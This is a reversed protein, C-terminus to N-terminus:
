CGNVKSRLTVEARMADVLEEGEVADPVQDEIQRRLGVIGVEIQRLEGELAAGGDGSWADLVDGKTQTIGAVVKLRDDQDAEGQVEIWDVDGEFRAQRSRAQEERM